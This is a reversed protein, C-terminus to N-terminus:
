WIVNVEDVCVESTFLDAIGFGGKELKWVVCNGLRVRYCSALLATGGKCGRM